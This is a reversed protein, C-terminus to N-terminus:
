LDQCWLCYRTSFIIPHYSVLSARDEEELLKSSYYSM